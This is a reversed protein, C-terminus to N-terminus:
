HGNVESGLEELKESAELAVVLTLPELGVLVFPFGTYALRDQTEDGVEGQGQGLNRGMEDGIGTGRATGHKADVAVCPEGVVFMGILGIDSHAKGMAALVNVRGAKIEVKLGTSTEGRGAQPM